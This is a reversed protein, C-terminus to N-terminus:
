KESGRILRLLLSVAGFFIMFLSVVFGIELLIVWRSGGRAFAGVCFSFALVVGGFFLLLGQAWSPGSKKTVPNM